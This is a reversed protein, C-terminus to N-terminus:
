ASETNTESTREVGPGARTPAVPMGLANMVKHLNTQVSEATDVVLRPGSIRELRERAQQYVDWDRTRQEPTEVARREVRERLLGDDTTICEILKFSVKVGRVLTEIADQFARYGAPSDLVVHAGVTLNDRALPVLLTYSLVGAFTTINEVKMERGLALATDKITDKDLYAAGLERAVARALTSKGTGPAGAFVILFPDPV